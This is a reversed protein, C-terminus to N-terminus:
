AGAPSGETLLTDGPVAVVDPPAVTVIVPLLKTPTVATVNPPTAAEDKLTVEGVVIEATVGFWTAPGTSTCTTVAEPTDDVLKLSVTMKVVGVSGGDIVPKDTFPPVAPELMVTNPELKLEPVVSDNPEIGAVETTILELVENVAVIGDPHQDTLTM